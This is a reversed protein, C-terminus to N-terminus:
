PRREVMKAPSLSSDYMVWDDALPRYVELFNTAPADNTKRIATVVGHLPSSRGFPCGQAVAFPSTCLVSYDTRPDFALTRRAEMSPHGPSARLVSASRLAILSVKRAKARLAEADHRAATWGVRGQTPTRQM